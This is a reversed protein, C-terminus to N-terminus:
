AGPVLDIAHDVERSPPLETLDELFVDEYKALWELENTDKPKNIPNLKVAYIMQKKRYCKLLKTATVLQLIPTGRNGKVTVLTNAGDKFRLEGQKCGISAENKILWDMRLIGDYIGLPLVRFKAETNHDGLRFAITGVSAISQTQKGTALEVRLQSDAHLPLNLKRVCASSIFSHTAGSDILLNFGIGEYEAPTQLVAYQRNPGQHEIAAHVRAIEPESEAEM